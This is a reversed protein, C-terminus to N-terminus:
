LGFWFELNKLIFYILAVSVLVAYKWYKQFLLVCVIYGVFSLFIFEPKGSTLFPV